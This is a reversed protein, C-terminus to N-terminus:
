YGFQKFCGILRDAERFGADLAGHVSNHKHHSTAEGAFCVVPFKNPRYLPESLIIASSGTEESSVSRYSYAGRTLPDSAWESRIISKIPTVNFQKKFVVDLLKNVGARIADLSVKEMIKTGNGYTWALLVNPNHDVAWLGYIETIWYEDDSFKAKDEDTWLIGLNDGKSFWPKEFEIYIKGLVSLQLNKITTIKETPLPPNFLTDYREKLVGISVTVIVSKAAYLSGDKCKVQVLPNSSDLGPQNTGWRISEVEKNLLIELPVAKSPDPYKNLLADIIMQFGRGKWHFLIESDFNWCEELGKLSKGERPDNQGGVHKMREYWELFPKTVENNKLIENTKAVNRICESISRTNNKDAKAIEEDLIQVITNGEKNRLDGSSLVFTQEFPACRELLGLPNAVDFVDNEIQGHCWAAGIDVTSSGFPVTSIRGGIRDAAELGLVKLGADHLRRMAAIGSAGCGIVLVDM